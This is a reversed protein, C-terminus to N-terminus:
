SYSEKLNQKVKPRLDFSLSNELKHDGRPLRIEKRIEDNLGM